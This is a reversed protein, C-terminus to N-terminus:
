RSHAHRRSLLIEGEVLIDPPQGARQSADDLPQFSLFRELDDLAQSGCRAGATM